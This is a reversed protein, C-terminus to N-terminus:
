LRTDVPLKPEGLPTPVPPPQFHSTYNSNYTQTYASQDWFVDIEALRVEVQLTPLELNVRLSGFPKSLIGDEM